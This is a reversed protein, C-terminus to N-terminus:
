CECEDEGDYNRVQVSLRYRYEAKPTPSFVRILLQHAYADGGPGNIALVGDEQTTTSLLQMDEAAYIEITMAHEPGAPIVPQDCDAGCLGADEILARVYLYHVEYGLAEVDFHYWDDESACLYADEIDRQAVWEDSHHWTVMSPKEPSFNPEWADILECDLEPATENEVPVEESTSPQSDSEDLDGNECGALALALGLVQGGIIQRYTQM